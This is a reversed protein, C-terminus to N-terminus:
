QGSTLQLVTAGVAESIRRCSSNSVRTGLSVLDVQAGAGSEGTAGFTVSIGLEGCDISWAITAPVTTVGHLVPDEILLLGNSYRVRKRLRRELETSAQAPDRLVAELRKQANIRAQEDPAYRSTCVGFFSSKCDTEAVAATTLLVTVAAGFLTPLARIGKQRSSNCNIM